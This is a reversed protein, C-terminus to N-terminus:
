RAVVPPRKKEIKAWERRLRTKEAESVATSFEGIQEPMACGSHELEYHKPM